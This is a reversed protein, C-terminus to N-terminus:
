FQIQYKFDPFFGIQYVNFLEGTSENYRESFINKNNTLNRFDLYWTQSIKRKKSNMRYGVKMDLRFYPTYRETYARSEDRVAFGAARSMELDIPTYYRGGDTTLNMDFTLANQKNKGLYWEKGALFNFTYKNNFSTNREVGDSPTYNSDFVSATILGYYGSSFFKEITLELGYNNGTGDNILDPAEAFGFDDGTNLTSYTSSFRNVPVENIFQYYAETKIRWDTGIKQDYGVVFHHSKTFGLEQNERNITGDENEMEFFYIPLPQMQSHLGYGISVKSSKTLDYNIALRPEVVVEDNLALYQSHLGGNITIKEVPKYRM